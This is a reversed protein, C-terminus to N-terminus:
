TRCLAAPASVLGVRARSPGTRIDAAPGERRVHVAFGASHAPVRGMGSSGWHSVGRGGGPGGRYQGNGEPKGGGLGRGLTEEVAQAAGDFTGGLALDVALGVPARALGGAACQPVLAANGFGPA